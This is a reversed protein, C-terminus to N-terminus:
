ALGSRIRCLGVSWPWVMSATRIADGLLRVIKAASTQPVMGSRRARSEAALAPVRVFGAFVAHGHVDQVLRPSGNVM